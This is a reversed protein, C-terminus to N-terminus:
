PHDGTVRFVSTGASAFVEGDSAVTVCHAPAPLTGSVSTKAAALDIKQITNGSGYYVAGDHASASISEAALAGAVPTVQQTKPDYLHWAGAVTFAVKGTKADAVVHSVVAAGPFAKSFTLKRTNRNVVGFGASEGSKHPLGNGELSTGFYISHEDVAIGHLGQQQFPNEILETKGDAPDTIAIAGGYTGYKAMWGSYLKKDPGVVVGAVPRIYGRETLSVITRPNKGGIQNWPEDPDYRVIEGGSYAVAYVKGDIFAADYVEGGSNAVQSTNKAEGSQTDLSFLTQGFTPGGWLRKQQDVKLFHVDRPASPGPIQNLAIDDKGPTIVFYDQGRVGMLDGTSAGALVRAGKLMHTTILSLEKDGTTYRWITDKQRIYLTNGTSAYTDVSWNGGEPTPFPPKEVRQLTKGDFVASGSLFYGNWTVGSLVDKMSEPTSSFKKTKPDFLLTAPKVMGLSCLIRGDPLASVNRLYTNPPAPAGCDEVAYTNLDLAGLKGGPYTGGYLRGDSGIAQNWIYQEGPFSATHIFKMTKLDFIMFKGDYYTGVVLRDGPVQDLAWSGAGAPCKIVEATNNKFDLCILEAGSSENMNTLVLREQGDVMKVVRGALVNRARCPDGLKEVKASAVAAVLLSLVLIKNM